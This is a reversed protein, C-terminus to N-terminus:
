RRTASAIWEQVRHSWHYWGHLRALLTAATDWDYVTFRGWGFPDHRPDVPAGDATLACTVGARRARAMMEDDHHGAHGRGYPFAFPRAGPGFHGDLWALSARVDAEFADPRGRFDAHTHTHSGVDVLGVEDVAVDAGGM